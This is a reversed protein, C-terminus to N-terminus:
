PQNLLENVQDIRELIAQKESTPAVTLFVQLYQLAESYNKIEILYETFHYLLQYDNNTNKLGELYVSRVEGSKTKLFDNYLKALNFYTLYYSSNTNIAKLFAEEAKEYLGLRIYINGINLWPTSNTPIIEWAKEFYEMAKSANGLEREINGLDMFVEYNKPFLQLMELNKNIRNQLEQRQEPALNVELFYEPKSDTVIRKFLDFKFLIILAIIAVLGGIFVYIIKKNKFYFLPM